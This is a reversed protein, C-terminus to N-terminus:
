EAALALPGPAPEAAFEAVDALLASVSLEVIRRGGEISALAPHSGM